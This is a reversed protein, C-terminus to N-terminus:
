GTIAPVDALVVEITRVRAKLISLESMLNAYPVAGPVLAMATLARRTRGTACEVSDMALGAERLRERRMAECLAAEHDRTTDTM